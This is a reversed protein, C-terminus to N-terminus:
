PDIYTLFSLLYSLTGKLRAVARLSPSIWNGGGNLRTHRSRCRSAAMRMRRRISRTRNCPLCRVRAMTRRNSRALTGETRRIRPLRSGNVNHDLRISPGSIFEFRRLQVPPLASGQRIFTLLLFMLHETSVEMTWDTQYSM